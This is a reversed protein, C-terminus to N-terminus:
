EAVQGNEAPNMVELITSIIKDHSIPITLVSSAGADLARQRYDSRATNVVIKTEPVTERIQKTADLGNIGPMMLDMLVVSPRLAQTMRVAEEGNYARGVCVMNPTRNILLQLLNSAAREDNAILVKITQM